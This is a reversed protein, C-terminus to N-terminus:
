GAGSPTSSSTRSGAALILLTDPALVNQAHQAHYYSHTWAHDGVVRVTISTFMHHTADIEGLTAEAERRYDAPSPYGGAVSMTLQTDPTFCSELLDWDRRDIAVAYRLIM